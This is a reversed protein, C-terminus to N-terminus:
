DARNIGFRLKIVWRVVWATLTMLQMCSPKNSTLNPITWSTKMVFCGQWLDLCTLGFCNTTGTSSSAIGIAADFHELDKGGEGTARPDISIESFVIFDVSGTNEINIGLSTSRTSDLKERPRSNIATFCFGVLTIEISQKDRQM